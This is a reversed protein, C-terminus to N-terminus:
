HEKLSFEDVSLEPDAVVAELVARFDDAMKAIQARAFVEDRYLWVARLASGSDTNEKWVNLILDRGILVQMPLPMVAVGALKLNDGMAEPLWNLMVRALPADRLNREPQLTRVLPELPVDGNALAALHTRQARALLEAFSPHDRLDIKLPFTGTAFLGISSELLHHNRGGFPVGIVIEEGGGYQHMLQAFAALMTAFLTAGSQRSSAELKQALDPLIQARESGVQLSATASRPRDIHLKLQPPESALWQKWFDRRADLVEPTLTQQQWYAFDAYQITPEPLPSPKGAVFADYILGLEKMLIDASAVDLIIHHFILGLVFSEAGLQILTARWLPATAFDFPRQADEKVLRAIQQAQERESLGEAESLAPDRLDTLSWHVTLAPAIVQVPCGDVVAFSTRLIEHRRLMEDLSARLAAVDLKGNLRYHFALNRARVSPDTQLRQWGQMQALSLPIDKGRSVPKLEVASGMPLTEADGKAHGNWMLEAVRNTLLEITPYELACTSPLAIGLRNSLRNALQIAMLSTMGLEVFRQSNEPITGLVESMEAQIHSQLLGLREAAPASALQQKLSLPTTKREERRLVEALLPMERPLQRQFKTWTIPMVGVQSETGQMLEGLLEVGEQPALAEMEGRKAMEAALGVEAWAGWNITLSPLGLARRQHALADVFANAAAYNAQGGNGLLSTVSSFCVFFDLPLNESLTHLYWSGFVKPASVREFREITQHLLIGDDIVGAAHIIGRLPALTQAEALMRVVDDLKSVDARVVRVKAGVQELEAIAQQASATVGSRGVLVLHRAGQAVLWKAVQLGLGGLGGTILYCSDANIPLPHKETQQYRVLRAVYRGGGCLAIQNEADAFWLEEFLSQAHAEITMELLPRQSSFDGLDVCTCQLEPHEWVVTRGFGWLPAQALQLQHSLNGVQGVAVAGQTVLWLRPQAGPQVIAQTLQLVQAYLDRATDPVDQQAIAGNADLSWLYVVGRLNFTPFQLNSILSQINSTPIQSKILTCQEGQKELRAALEAGIGKRDALILWSGRAKTYPSQAARKSAQWDLRYLWDTRVRNGLLARRNVSWLSLGAVQAVRTGQEDFLDFDIERSKGKQKESKVQAHCWVSAHAGNEFRTLREVGTPLYVEGPENAFISGGVQLCADLLAPHLTYESATLDDPLRIHGMAEGDGVCLKELGQFAPGYDIGDERSQQYHSAINAPEQRRSQLDALSVELTQLVKSTQPVLNGSAHLTWEANDDARSFVQWGYEADSPTLIMQVLADQGESLLM